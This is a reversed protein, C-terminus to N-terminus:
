RGPAQKAQAPLYMYGRDKANALCAEYNAHAKSSEAVISQGAGIQQWNWRRGDDMYFRWIINM